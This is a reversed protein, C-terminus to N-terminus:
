HEILDSGTDSLTLAGDDDSVSEQSRDISGNM